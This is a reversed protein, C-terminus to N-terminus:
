CNMSRYSNSYFLLPCFKPQTVLRSAQHKRILLLYFLYCNTSVSPLDLDLVNCSSLTRYCWAMRQGRTLLNCFLLSLQVCPSWMSLHSVYPLYYRRILSRYTQGLNNQLSGQSWFEWKLPLHWSSFQQDFSLLFAHRHYLHQTQFLFNLWKCSLCPM